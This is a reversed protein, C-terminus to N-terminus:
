PQTSVAQKVQKSNEGRPESHLSQKAARAQCLNRPWMPVRQSLSPGMESSPDSPSLGPTPLPLLIRWNRLSEPPPAGEPSLLGRFAPDKPVQFPIEPCLFDPPFRKCNKGFPESCVWLSDLGGAWPPAKEGLCAFDALTESDGLRVQNILGARALSVPEGALTALYCYSRLWIPLSQWGGWDKDGKGATGGNSGALSFGSSQGRPM